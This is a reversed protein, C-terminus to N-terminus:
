MSKELQEEKRLLEERMKEYIQKLAQNYKESKAFAKWADIMLHKHVENHYWLLGASEIWTPAKAAYYLTFVCDFVVADLITEFYLQPNEFTLESLRDLRKKIQMREEQVSKAFKRELEGILRYYVPPPYEDTSTDVIREVLKRNQLDKLRQSLTRSSLKTQDKIEGWRLRLGPALRLFKLIKQEPDSLEVDKKQPM